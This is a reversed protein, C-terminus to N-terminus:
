ASGTSRGTAGPVGTRRRRTLVSLVGWGGLGGDRYGLYLCSLVAPVFLIPVVSWHTRSFQDIFASEFM